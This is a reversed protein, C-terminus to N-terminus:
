SLSKDSIYVFHKGKHRVIIFIEARTLDSLENAKKFMTSSRRSFGLQQRKELTQIRVESNDLLTTKSRPRM